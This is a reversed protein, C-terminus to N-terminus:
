FPMGDTFDVLPDCFKLVLSQTVGYYLLIAIRNLTNIKRELGLSLRPRPLGSIWRAPARVRPGYRGEKPLYPSKGFEVPSILYGHRSVATRTSKRQEPVLARLFPASCM